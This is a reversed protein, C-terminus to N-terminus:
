ASKALYEKVTERLKAVRMPKFVFADFGLGDAADEKVYGSLGIVPLEPREEKLKALLEIGDMDPMNVDTIVLKPPREKAQELATRGNDATMVDYEALARSLFSCIEVEDDVILITPLAERLQADIRKRLDDSDGGEADIAELTMQLEQEVRGLRSRLEEYEFARVNDEDIRESVLMVLNRFVTAAMKLDSNLLMDFARRPIVLTMSDAEARASLRRPRGGVIGLEGLPTIPEFRAMVTGDSRLLSIAGKLLVFMEDSPQDTEFLMEAPKLTRSNCINLLTQLQTPSLGDFVPIRKLIRLLSSDQKAMPDGNTTPFSFIRGFM